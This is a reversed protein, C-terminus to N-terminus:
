FNDCITPNHHLDFILRENNNNRWQMEHSEKRKKKEKKTTYGEMWPGSNEIKLIQAHSLSNSCTFRGM